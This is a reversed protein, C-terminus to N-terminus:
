RRKYIVSTKGLKTESRNGVSKNVTKPSLDTLLEERMISVSDPAEIGLRVQGYRHPTLIRIRIDSGVTIVEGLRRTLVLM